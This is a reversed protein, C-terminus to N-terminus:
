GRRRRWWALGGGIAFGLPVLLVCVVFTTALQGESMILRVTEPAKDGIALERDRGVLWTVASTVLADQVGLGRGVLHSSPSLASGLVVLRAESAPNRAAAAIPVPGPLDDGDQAPGDVLQDADIEGWGTASSSVLAVPGDPELSLARPREWVTLRRRQYASSVPHEGYGEATMWTLPLEVGSAPDVVVARPLGIGHEALVLELGTDPLTAGAVEGVEGSSAAVLVRGGGSLYAAVAEAEAASLPRTPGAVLLARCRLPVGGAPSGLDELSMGERALRAAVQGWHPGDATAELPLEGHGSTYCVNIRGEDGLELLATAFAEEAHFRSLAGVGLDDYDFGVMDLLDVARRREGRQFVVAGGDALDRLPLAFEAALAPIETQDGVPDLDRRALRPQTELMREILRDVQEYVRAFRDDAPRVVLVQVPEDIRALIEATRPDLVNVDGATVDWRQPHRAALVCALAAIVVFLATAVARASLESRRRRGQVSLTVAAALGVAVLAAYFVLAELDVAGRAFADMHARVDLFGLVQGATPHAAVWTPALDDIEGCLLLGLQLVFAAVAAVIPNATWAAAAMALALFGAGAIVVGAYASLVPGLEFSAGPPLYRTVLVPFLATPLWLLVYFGLAGLWKGAIVPGEDVPATLLSEWSGHRREEALARMALVSILLFLVAWYLLTGGFWTHLVAGMPAPQAPDALVRVVAWFSFGQVALFLVGVVYAIPAHFYSALERRAVVFLTRLGSV